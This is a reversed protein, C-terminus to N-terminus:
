ILFTPELEKFGTKEDYIRTFIANPSELLTIEATTFIKCGEMLHGGFFDGDKDSLGLHFHASETNGTGTMSVIEFREVRTKTQNPKERSANAMRLTAETLSGVCTVISAAQIEKEKIYALIGEMLDEGPTLRFTHVRPTKELLSPLHEQVIYQSLIYGTAIGGFFISAGTLLKHKDM